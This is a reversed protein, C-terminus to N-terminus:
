HYPVIAAAWQRNNGSSLTGSATYNGTTTVVQYEPFVTISAARSGGDASANNLLIFSGGATMTDSSTRTEVGIAGILLENAYSTADAGSSPASTNGDRYANNGGFGLWYCLLRQCSKFCSLTLHYTIIDNGVALASTIQSSFVVTRVGALVPVM